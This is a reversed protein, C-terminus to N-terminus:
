NEQSSKKIVDIYDDHSKERHPLKKIDFKEFMSLTKQVKQETLKSGVNTGFWYAIVSSFASAMTGFLLFLVNTDTASEVGHFMLTIVVSFFGLLIILTVLPPMMSLKFTERANARDLRDAEIDASASENKIKEKLEKNALHAAAVQLLQAKANSEIALIKDKANPDAEILANLEDPKSADGGFTQAITQLIIKSGPIKM